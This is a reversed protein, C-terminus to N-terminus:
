SQFDLPTPVLPPPPPARAGGWIINVFHDDLLFSADTIIAKMPIGFFVPPVPGFVSPFLSLHTM